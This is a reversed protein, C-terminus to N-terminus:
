AGLAKEVEAIARKESASVSGIGLIGGAAEAVKQMLELVDDHLLRRAGAELEDSLAGVYSTWAEFLAAPPKKALWGELLTYSPSGTEIGFQEAASLVAKREKEEVSGDAWAVHVLPVLRFAALSAATVGRAHLADVVADDRIGTIGRLAEKADAAEKQSRLKEVLEENEKQFFAEELAKRRKGLIESDM